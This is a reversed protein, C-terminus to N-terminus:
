YPNTKRHMLVRKKGTVPDIVSPFGKISLSLVQASVWGHERGAWWQIWDGVKM